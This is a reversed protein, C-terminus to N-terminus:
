GNGYCRGDVEVLIVDSGIKCINGWPIIFEQAAKFLRLGKDQVVVVAMVQGNQMNIELDSVTGLRLGDRMSIVEKTFLASYREM